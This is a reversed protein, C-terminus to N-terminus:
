ILSRGLISFYLVSYRIDALAVHLLLSFYAQVGDNINRPNQKTKVSVLIEVFFQTTKSNTIAYSISIYNKFINNKLVTNYALKLIKPKAAFVNFNMQLMLWCWNAAMNQFRSLATYFYQVTLYTQQCRHPEVSFWRAPNLPLCLCAFFTCLSSLRQFSELHHLRGSPCYYVYCSMRRVTGTSISGSASGSTPMTASKSKM